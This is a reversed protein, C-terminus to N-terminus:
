TSRRRLRATLAVTKTTCTSYTEVLGNNQTWPWYGAKELLVDFRGTQDWAALIRLTDQAEVSDVLTLDPRRFVYVTSGTAAARGTADDLVDISFAPSGVGACDGNCAMPGAVLLLIAIGRRRTARWLATRIAM